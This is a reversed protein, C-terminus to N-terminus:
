HIQSINHEPSLRKEGPFNKQALSEFSTSAGEIDIATSTNCAYLVMMFYVQGPLNDFATYHSFHTNITERFLPSILVEVVLRSLAIGYLEYTDYARLKVAISTPIEVNNSDFVPTLQISRSKYESIVNDLNFMHSHEILSHIKSNSDQISLLSHLGYYTVQEKLSNIFGEKDYETICNTPINLNGNFAIGNVNSGDTM